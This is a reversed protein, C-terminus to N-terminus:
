LNTIRESNVALYCIKKLSLLVNVPGTISKKKSIIEARSLHYDLLHEIFINLDAFLHYFSSKNKKVERALAEIKIENVGQQWFMKYGALIWPLKKDKKMM